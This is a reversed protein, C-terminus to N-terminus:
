KVVELNGQPPRYNEDHKTLLKEAIFKGNMDSITGEAVIGQGERFLTPLIGRYNIEITKANDTIAFKTTRDPLKSISDNVVLGGIRIKKGIHMEVLESPKIFFVINDSAFYLIMSIGASITAFIVIVMILRKNSKKNLHM